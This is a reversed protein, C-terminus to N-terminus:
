LVHRRAVLSASEISPIAHLAEIVRAADAGERLRVQGMRRIAPRTSDSALWGATQVGDIAEIQSVLAEREEAGLDRRLTFSVVTAPNPPM